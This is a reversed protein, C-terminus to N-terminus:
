EVNHITAICAFVFIASCVLWIVCLKKQTIQKFLMSESAFYDKTIVELWFLILSTVVGTLGIIIALLVNSLPMPKEKGSGDCQEAHKTNKAQIRKLEGNEVM